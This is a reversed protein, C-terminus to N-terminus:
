RKFEVQTTKYRKEVCRLKDYTQQFEAKGEMKKLMDELLWVVEDLEEENPMDPFFEDAKDIYEKLVAEEPLEREVEPRGMWHEDVCVLVCILRSYFAVDYMKWWFATDGITRMVQRRLESDMDQFSKEYLAKLHVSAGAMDNTEQNWRLCMTDYDLFGKIGGDKEVAQRMRELSAEVMKANEVRLYCDVTDKWAEVADGEQGELKRETLLYYNCQREKELALHPDYYDESHSYIEAELKKLLAEIYEADPVSTDPKEEGLMEEVERCLALAGRCNGEEAYILAIGLVSRIYLDKRIQSFRKDGVISEYVKWASDHRWWGNRYKEAASFLRELAEEAQNIKWCYKAYELYAEVLVDDLDECEDLAHFYTNWELYEEEKLEITGGGEWKAKKIGFALVDTVAGMDGEKSLPLQAQVIRNCYFIVNKADGWREYLEVILEFIGSVNAKNVEERKLVGLLVEEANEYEKIEMYARGIECRLLEADWEGKEIAKQYLSIAEEYNGEHSAQDAAERYTDVDVWAVEKGNAMDTLVEQLKEAYYASAAEDGVCSTRVFHTFDTESYFEKLEHYVEKKVENSVLGHEALERAEAYIQGADYYLRALGSDNATELIWGEEEITDGLKVLTNAVELLLRAKDEDIMCKLVAFIDRETGSVAKYVESLVGEADEDDLVEIWDVEGGLAELELCWIRVLLIDTESLRTMECIREAERLAKKWQENKAYGVRKCYVYYLEALAYDNGSVRNVFHDALRRRIERHVSSEEKKEFYIRMARVICPCNESTPNLSNYALDLIVQHLSIMETKEDHEVWGHRVLNDLHEKACVRQEFMRCFMDKKVRVEGLLSLSRMIELEFETFGSLDFLAQLHGYIQREKRVEDKNHRVPPYVAGAVGEKQEMQRLLTLPDQKAYLLYKALLTITMTHNEFLRGLEDITEWEKKSYQKGNNKQFLERRESDEQLIGIDIQVYDYERWFEERTTILLKCGCNLLDNLNEDEEIAHNREKKDFNDLIILDDKDIIQELCAMKREYFESLSEDGEVKCGTIVLDDSCITEMITNTFHLFVIRNFRNGYEHAFRKALETKGIGGMGALFVVNTEAFANRIKLLEESRGVFQSFQYSFRHLLTMEEVNSMKELEELREYVDRANQYRMSVESSLTKHFFEALRSFLKPQYREDPFCIAGFDYQANWARDWVGPKRGFTKFFVVAGISYVDAAEGIKEKDGRALEPASFGETYSIRVEDEERLSRKELLSDFDFLVIQEKTDFPILMNEPKIDLHLYGEKHYNEIIKCLRKMRIFVDRLCYESYKGYDMGETYGMVSYVTHNKEYIELPNATENTLGPINRIDNNKKQAERFRQKAGEFQMESGIDAVIVGAGDREAELRYPFCEKIRVVHKGLSDEYFGDYVLCNAGRGVEKRIVFEKGMRLVTGNKLGIRTDGM